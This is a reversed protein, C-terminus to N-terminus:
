VEMPAKTRAICPAHRPRVIRRGAQETEFQCKSQAPVGCAPCARHWCDGYPGPVDDVGPQGVTEGWPETSM